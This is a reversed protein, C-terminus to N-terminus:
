RISVRKKIVRLLNTKVNGVYTEKIIDSCLYFMEITELRCEYVAKGENPHTLLTTDSRSIEDIQVDPFLDLHFGLIHHLERDFTYFLFVATTKFFDKHYDPSANWIEELTNLKKIRNYWSFTSKLMGKYAIKGTKNHIYGNKLEISPLFLNVNKELKVDTFASRYFEIIDLEISENIQNFKQILQEFTRITENNIDRTIKYEKVYSKDYTSPIKEIDKYKPDDSEQIRAGILKMSKKNWYINFYVSLGQEFKDIMMDSPLNLDVLACECPENLRIVKDYNIQFASAKISVSEVTEHNNLFLFFENSTENMM